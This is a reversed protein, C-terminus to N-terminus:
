ETPPPPDLPRDLDARTVPIIPGTREITWEDTPGIVAALIRDPVDIVEPCDPRKAVPKSIDASPYFIAFREDKMAADYFGKELQELKQANAVLYEAKCIPLDDRSVTACDSFLGKHAVPQSRKFFRTLRLLAAKLYTRISSWLTSTPM